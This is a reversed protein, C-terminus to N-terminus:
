NMSNRYMINYVFESSNDLIIQFIEAQLDVALLLRKQGDLVILQHIFYECLKALFKLRVLIAFVGFFEIALKYSSLEKLFIRGLGGKKLLSSSPPNKAKQFGYM